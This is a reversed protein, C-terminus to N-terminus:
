KRKKVTSHHKSLEPREPYTNFGEDDSRMPMKDGYTGYQFIKAEHQWKYAAYESESFAKDVYADATDRALQNSIDLGEKKSEEVAKLAINLAAQTNGSNAQARIAEGQLDLNRLVKKWEDPKFKAEIELLASNADDLRAKAQNSKINAQTVDGYWYIQEDLFDSERKARREEAKTLRGSAILNKLSQAEKRMAFLNRIREAETEQDLKASQSRALMSENDIRLGELLSSMDVSHSSLTPPSAQSTGSGIAGNSMALQPNIGAARLRRVQSEPSNYENNYHAIEWNQDIQEQKWYSDYMASGISAVAGLVASM